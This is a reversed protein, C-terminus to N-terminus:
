RALYEAVMDECHGKFANWGGLYGHCKTDWSSIKKLRPFIMRVSLALEEASGVIRSAFLFEELQSPSDLTNHQHDRPMTAHQVGLSLNKLKPCHRALSHMSALSLDGNPESGNISSLSFTVLRPWARAMSDVDRDTINLCPIGEFSLYTLNSLGELLRLSRVDITPSLAQDPATEDFFLLDTCTTPYQRVLSTIVADWEEREQADNPEDTSRYAYGYAVKLVRESRTRKLLETMERLGGIFSFDQLVPFAWRVGVPEVPKRPRSIVGPGTSVIHFLELTPIRGLQDFVAFIDLGENRPLVVQLWRLHKLSALREWSSQPAYALIELDDVFPARQPITAIFHWAAPSLADVDTWPHNVYIRRLSPSLFLIAENSRTPWALLFKLNPLLPKGQLFDSLQTITTPNIDHPETYCLHRVLPAYVNLRTFSEDKLPEMLVWESVGFPQVHLQCSAPILKLLCYIDTLCYWLAALAQEKFTRGSLAANLLTQRQLKREEVDQWRSEGDVQLHRFIEKQIDQSELVPHM